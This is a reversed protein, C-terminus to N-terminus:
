PSYRGGRGKKKRPSVYSIVFLEGLGKAKAPNVIGQLDNLALSFQLNDSVAENRSNVM